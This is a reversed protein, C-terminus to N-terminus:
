YHISLLNIQKRLFCFWVINILTCVKNTPFFQREQSFYYGIASAIRGNNGSLEAFLVQSTLIQGFLDMLKLIFSKRITAPFFPSAVLCTRPLFPGVNASPIVPADSPPAAIAQAVNGATKKAPIKLSVQSSKTSYVQHSLRTSENKKESSVTTTEIPQRQLREGFLPTTQKTDVQGDCLQVKPSIEEQIDNEKTAQAQVNVTKVSEELEEVLSKLDSFLFQELSSILSSVETETRKLVEVKIRDGVTELSRLVAQLKAQMKM